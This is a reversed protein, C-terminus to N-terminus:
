VDSTAGDFLKTIQSKLLKSLRSMTSKLDARAAGVRMAVVTDTKHFKSQLKEQLVGQKVTEKYADSALILGRINLGQDTTLSHYSSLAHIARSCSESLNQLDEIADAFQHYGWMAIYGEAHDSLREIHLCTNCGLGSLWDGIKPHFIDTTWILSIIYTENDNSSYAWVGSQSGILSWVGRVQESNIRLPVEAVSTFESGQRLSLHMLLRSCDLWLRHQWRWCEDEEEKRRLLELYGQWLFRYRSDQLLVFNPVVPQQVQSVDLAVLEKMARHCRRGYSYVDAWRPTSKLKEYHRTYQTAERTTRVAFDRLVRNELTNISEQRQVAMIKQRPGAREYVTEGPQRSLWRVCSVDLQQVRDVNTLERQRRLLHRPKEILDRVLSGYKHAHRVILSMPPITREADEDNWANQLRDWVIQYEEYQPDETMQILNVLQLLFGDLTEARTEPIDANDTGASYAPRPLYGLIKIKGAREGDFDVELNRESPRVGVSLLYLTYAESGLLFDAGVLHVAMKYGSVRVKKNAPVALYIPRGAEVITDNAVSLPMRGYGASEAKPDFLAWPSPLVFAKNLAM